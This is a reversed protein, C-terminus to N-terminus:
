KSSCTLPKYLKSDSLTVTPKLHQSHSCCLKDTRQQNSIQMHEKCELNAQQGVNRSVMMSASWDVTKVVVAGM